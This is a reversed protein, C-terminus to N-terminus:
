RAGLDPTRAPASAARSVSEKASSIWDKAFLYTSSGATVSVSATGQGAFTMKNKNDYTLVLYSGSVTPSWKKLDAYSSGTAISIKDNGVTYDGITDSGAKYVFTDNDAGGFFSDAGSGSFFVDASAGGIVTLNTKVLSADISAGSSGGTISTIPTNSAFKFYFPLTVSSADFITRETAGNISASVLSQAATTDDAAISITESSDSASLSWGNNSLSSLSAISSGAGSGYVYHIDGSGVSWAFDFRQLDFSFIKGDM